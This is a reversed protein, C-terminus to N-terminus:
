VARPVPERRQMLDRYHKWFGRQPTEDGGRNSAMAENGDPFERSQGRSIDLWEPFATHLAVQSRDGIEADDALILGAPGMAGTCQVSVRDNIDDMGEFFVPTIYMATEEASIPDFVVINMQSLFLNPFVVTHPPGELLAMDAVEQGHRARLADVYGKVREYRPSGAWQMSRGDKRYQPRFDLETHGAGLHKVTLDEEPDFADPIAEKLSQHVTNVHYNDVQSEVAMKWNCNLKHGIRGATLDVKGNPSLMLLRDISARVPAIFEEFSQASDDDKLRCFIFGGYIETAAPKALAFEDTRRSQFDAYADSRPAGRLAGDLEFVWGHYMCRLLGGQGKDANCVLSGRHTCRNFLVHVRGDSGRTLILEQGAVKKRAFTKAEGVESEHGVYVWTTQFVLDLEDNYLESDWYFRPSVKAKSIGNWVESNRDIKRQINM